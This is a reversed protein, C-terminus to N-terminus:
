HIVPPTTASAPNTILPYTKPKQIQLPPYRHCNLKALAWADTSGTSTLPYEKKSPTHEPSLRVIKVKVRDDDDTM